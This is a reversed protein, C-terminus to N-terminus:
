ESVVWPAAVVDYSSEIAARYRNKPGETLPRMPAEDRVVFVQREEDWEYIWCADAVRDVLLVGKEGHGARRILPQGDLPRGVCPFESM